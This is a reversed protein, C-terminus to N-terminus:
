YLGLRLFGAADLHQPDDGDIEDGALQQRVFQPYPKDENFARVVYDRYRWIFPRYADQNWGDSDSYRVLDLWYRAWHEGYHPDDLLRDVLKEWADPTDQQVFDDVESPTPPLGLLDFYLRRVLITRDARPAPLMQNDRLRHLVFRDIENLSWDDHQNRPPRPRGLPVFAWWHRDSESIGRESQRISGSIRPWA